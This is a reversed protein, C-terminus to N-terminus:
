ARDGPGGRAGHLAALLTVGISITATTEILLILAAARDPGLELLRGGALMVGAATGAFAAPGIVVLARLQWDPMAVLWPYGALAGLLGAAALLTGAQFAGGPGHAGAWLLYGAFLILFPILLMALARLVPGPDRTSADATALTRTGLLALLLVTVELLTDYARFNMLVATVGHAVGSVPLADRVAGGLGAAPPLTAIVLALSAAFALLLLRVIWAGATSGRDEGGETM